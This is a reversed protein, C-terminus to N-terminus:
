SMSVPENRSVKRNWTAWPSQKSHIVRKRCVSDQTSEHVVGVADLEFTFAQSLRASVSVSSRSLVRARGRKRRSVEIIEPRRFDNEPRQLEHLQESWTKRPDACGSLHDV